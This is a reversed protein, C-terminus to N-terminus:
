MSAPSPWSGRKRVSIVARPILSTAPTARSGGDRWVRCRRRRSRSRRVRRWEGRLVVKRGAARAIQWERPNGVWLRRRDSGFAVNWVRDGGHSSEEDDSEGPGERSARTAVRRDALRCSNGIVSATLSALHGDMFVLNKSDRSSKCNLVPLARRNRTPQPHM